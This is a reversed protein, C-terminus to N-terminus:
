WNERLVRKPLVDRAGTGGVPGRKAELVGSIETALHPGSPTAPGGGGRSATVGGFSKDGLSGSKGFKGAIHSCTSGFIASKHAVTTM